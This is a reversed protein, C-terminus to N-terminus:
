DGGTNEQKVGGEECVVRAQSLRTCHPFWKDRPVAMFGFQDDRGGASKKLEFEECRFELVRESFCPLGRPSSDFYIVILHGSEVRALIYGVRSDTGFAVDHFVFRSGDTLSSNVCALTAEDFPYRFDTPEWRVGCDKLGGGLRSVIGELSCQWAPTRTCKPSEYIIEPQAANGSAGPLVVGSLSFSLLVLAKM